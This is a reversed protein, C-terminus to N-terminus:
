RVSSRGAHDDVSAGLDRLTRIRRAAVWAIAAVIVALWLVGVHRLIFSHTWGLGDPSTSGGFPLPALSLVIAACILWGWWAPTRGGPQDGDLLGSASGAPSLPLLVLAAIVVAFFLYYVPSITSATSALAVPAVVLVSRPLERRGLWLVVTLIVALVVVVVLPVATVSASLWRGFGGLIWPLGGIWDGITIVSRSVSINANSPLSVDGVGRFGRVNDLWAPLSEMIGGATAVFSVVTVGVFAGVAAAAQRWRALAILPIILLIFQPRITAAAVVSAPAVWTPQRGLFIAFVLLFPVVFGASNGRDIVAIVPVAAVGLVVLPMAAWPSRRWRWAVWLAPLGVAIALAAAYLYFTAELGVGWLILVDAVLHPLQGIPTYLSNYAVSPDSRYPHQSPDFGPLGFDHRATLVQGTYDGFCHAGLGPYVGAECWGDRVVYSFAGAIENGFYQSLVWLAPLAVLLGLSLGLFLRAAWRADGRHADEPPVRTSDDAV